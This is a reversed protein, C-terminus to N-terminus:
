LARQMRQYIRSRFSLADSYMTVGHFVLYAKKAKTKRLRHEIASYEKEKFPDGTGFLRTYVIDANYAPNEKTLDSCYVIGKDKLLELSDRDITGRHELVPMISSSIFSDFIVMSKKIKQLNLSLYAPTQLVIINSRLIKCVEIMYDVEDMCEQEPTLSCVHTIARNCKVAFEFTKPVRNRWSSIMPIPPNSYFTYNVEVFDFLEAYVKLKDGSANYYGWGGTGIALKM